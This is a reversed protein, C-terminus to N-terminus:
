AVWRKKEGRGKGGRSPVSTLTKYINIIIIFCKKRKNGRFYKLFPKNKRVKVPLKEFSKDKKVNWLSFGVINGLRPYISIIARRFEEANLSLSVHWKRAGAIFSSHFISLEIAMQM